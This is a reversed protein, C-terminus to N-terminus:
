ETGVAAVGQSPGFGVFTLGHPVGGQAPCSSWWGGGSSSGGGSRGARAPAALAFLLAFLVLALLLAAM